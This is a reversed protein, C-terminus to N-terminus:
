STEIFIQLIHSAAWFYSFSSTPDKAATLHLSAKAAPGPSIDLYKQLFCVQTKCINHAQMIKLKLECVQWNAREIKVHRLLQQCPPIGINTNAALFTIFDPLKELTNKGM